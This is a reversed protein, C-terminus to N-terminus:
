WQWIIKLSNNRIISRKIDSISTATEGGAQPSSPNSININTAICCDIVFVQGIDWILGLVYMSNSVTNM